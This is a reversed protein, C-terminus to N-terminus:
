GAFADQIEQEESDTRFSRAPREYIIEKGAINRIVSM